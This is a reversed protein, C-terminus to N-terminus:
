QGAEKYRLIRKEIRKFGASIATIVLGIFIIGVIVRAYDGFDARDKVYWGLGETAGILEAATLLLFSFVLSLSAGTLISPMAGPLLVRFIFTGRKLHLMRASDLMTEPINVVGAVTNAFIPWFAGSWIVFISAASFSPLLRIAYPIYVIPPIVSLVKSFPEVANRLRTSSGVLLGGPIATGLSLLYATGLLFLSSLMGHAMDKLEGFFQRLVTELAPFYVPDLVPWNSTVLQWALLFGELVAAVDVIATRRAKDWVFLTRVLAAAPILVGAAAAFWDHKWVAAATLGIFELILLIKM